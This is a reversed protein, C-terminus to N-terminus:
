LDALIRAKQDAYEVDDVVGAARLADLQRIRSAIDTPGAAAAPPPPPAGVMGVGSGDSGFADGFMAAIQARGDADDAVAYAFLSPDAADFWVPYRQGIQPIQVRSVTKTKKSEFAAAGDLPQIHFTMEVRPNDNITTGTDRVNVITGVAKVGRALLAQQKKRAGFM